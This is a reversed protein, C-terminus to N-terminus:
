GDVFMSDAAAALGNFLELTPGDRIRDIPSQAQSAM